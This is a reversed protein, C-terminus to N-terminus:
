TATSASTVWRVGCLIGAHLKGAGPEESHEKAVEARPPDGSRLGGRNTIGALVAQVHQEAKRNRMHGQEPADVAGIGEGDGSTAPRKHM